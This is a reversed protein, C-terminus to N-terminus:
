GYVGIVRTAGIRTERNVHQHGHLFQRPQVREIYRVSAEFGVHVDDNRHHIGRPSNHAVFVDVAPVSELLFDVEPQEYLYHGRPKCRWGGQFGGSRVGDIVHTMLHRDVIQAPFPAGADHNGKVALIRSCRTQNAVRLITVDDLDGCSVLVDAREGVTSERVNEDDLIALIKM